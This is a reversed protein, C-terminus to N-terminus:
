YNHINEGTELFAKVVEWLDFSIINGSAAYKTSSLIEKTICNKTFKQGWWTKFTILTYNYNETEQKREIKTIRM